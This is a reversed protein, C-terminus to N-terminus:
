RKRSKMALALVAVVALGGGVLLWPNITEGAPGTRSAKFTSEWEGTLPNRTMSAPGRVSSYFGGWRSAGVTKPDLPGTSGTLFNM